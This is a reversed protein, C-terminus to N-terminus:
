RIFIAIQDNSQNKGFNTIQFNIHVFPRDIISGPTLVLYGAGTPSFIWDNSGVPVVEGL